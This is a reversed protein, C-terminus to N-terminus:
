VALAEEVALELHAERLGVRERAADDRAPEGALFPLLADVGEQLLARGDEPLRAPAGDVDIRKGGPKTQPEAVDASWISPARWSSPRPGDIHSSKQRSCGSRM